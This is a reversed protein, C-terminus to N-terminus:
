YVNRVRISQWDFESEWRDVIENLEELWRRLEDGELGGRISATCRGPLQEIHRALTRAARSNSSALAYYTDKDPHLPWNDAVSWSGSRLSELPLPFRLDQNSKAIRATSRASCSNDALRVLGNNLQHSLFFVVADDKSQLQLAYCDEAAYRRSTGSNTAGALGPSESVCPQRQSLQVIRLSSLFGDEVKPFEYIAGPVLKAATYNDPIRIYADASLAVLQSSADTPTITIWYQYLDNDVQHAKGEIAANPPESTSSFQLSPIGALNYGVLEVLPNGATDQPASHMEALVYEGATQRLLSCGLEYALQAAMLDTESSDWPAYREGRFTPDQAVTRLERRQRHNVTGQWTRGFEPVWTREGVDLARVSVSIRDQTNENIEIGIFYSAQTKTCDLGSSGATLGVGPQDAQWTIQVGPADILSDRLRDRIGIALASGESQPSDDRMVVFRFSENRFRPHTTLQQRVYPLLDRGLWTDLDVIRSASRCDVAYGALLLSLVTTLLIKM